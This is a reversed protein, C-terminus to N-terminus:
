CEKRIAKPFPSWQQGVGTVLAEYPVCYQRMAHHLPRTSYMPRAEDKNRHPLAALNRPKTYRAALKWCNTKIESVVAATALGAAPLALTARYREDCEGTM